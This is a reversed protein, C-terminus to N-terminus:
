WARAKVEHFLDPANGLPRSGRDDVGQDAALLRGDPLFGLGYANRFGWAVLELGSGDLNCRMVAAAFFGFRVGVM